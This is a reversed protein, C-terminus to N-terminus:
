CARLGEKTGPERSPCRPSILSCFLFLAQYNLLVLERPPLGLIFLLDSLFPFSLTKPFSLSLLLAPDLLPSGHPPTRRWILGDPLVKPLQLQVPHTKPNCSEMMHDPCHPSPKSSCAKGPAHPTPRNAERCVAHPIVCSILM